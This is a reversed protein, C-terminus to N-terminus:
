GKQTVKVAGLGATEAAEKLAKAQLEELEKRLRRNEDSFDQVCPRAHRNAFYHLYYRALPLIDQRRERLATAHGDFEQLRHIRRAGGPQGFPAGVQAPRVHGLEHAIVSALEGSTVEGARYKRLFGETLFIRGDPAALGNVPDIAYVHVPIHPLNLAVALRDCAHGVLNVLAHRLGDHKARM